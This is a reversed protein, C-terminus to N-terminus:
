SIGNKLVDFFKELENIIEMSYGKDRHKEFYYEVISMQMSILMKAAMQLDLDQRIEGSEQGKRLLTVFMDDGKSGFVSRLKQIMGSNDRMMRNGIELYDPNALAFQIASRYMERLAEYFGLQSFNMMSPTLYEIKKEAILSMIYLYVDEKDNFYQYFSGKSIGSREVIKNISAADYNNDRFENVAEEIIKTRKEQPLNFFTPKPM